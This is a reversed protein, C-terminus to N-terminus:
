KKFLILITVQTSIILAKYSLKEKSSRTCKIGKKDKKFLYNQLSIM